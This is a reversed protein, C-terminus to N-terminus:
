GVCDVSVGEAEGRAVVHRLVHECHSVCVLNVHPTDVASRGGKGREVPCPAEVDPRAVNADEARGGLVVEHAGLHAVASDVCVVLSRILRTLYQGEFLVAGGPEHCNKEGSLCGSKWADWRRKVLVGPCLSM